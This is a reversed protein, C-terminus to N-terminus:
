NACRLRRANQDAGRAFLASFLGLTTTMVTTQVLPVPTGDALVGYIQAVSAGMFNQAFV